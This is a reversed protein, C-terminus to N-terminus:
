MPSGMHGGAACRRPIQCPRLFLFQLAFTAYVTMWELRYVTGYPLSSHRLFNWLPDYLHVLARVQRKQGLRGCCVQTQEIRIEFVQKEIVSLDLFENIGLKGMIPGNEVREGNSNLTVVKEPIKRDITEAAEIKISIHEQCGT